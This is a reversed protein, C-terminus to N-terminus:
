RCAEVAAEPYEECARLVAFVFEVFHRYVGWGNPSDYQKYKEPHARLEAYGDRLPQILESAKTVGLEEPRWLHKYVGAANAMTNLNHTINRSFVEEGDITLIIDLSM